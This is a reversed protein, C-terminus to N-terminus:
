NRENILREFPSSFNNVMSTLTLHKITDWSKNKKEEILDKNLLNELISDAYEKFCINKNLIISNNYNLYEVEPNHTESDININETPEDNTLFSDWANDINLDDLEM